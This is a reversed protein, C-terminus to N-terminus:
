YMYLDCDVLKDSEYILKMSFFGTDDNDIVETKITGAGVDMYSGVDDIAKKVGCLLTDDPEDLYFIINCKGDDKIGEPLLESYNKGQIVDDCPIGDEIELANIGLETLYYCIDDSAITTTNITYKIYSM